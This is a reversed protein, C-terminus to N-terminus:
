ASLRGTAGARVLLVAGMRRDVAEADPERRAREPTVHRRERAFRDPVEAAAVLRAEHPRHEVLDLPGNQDVNREGRIQLRVLPDGRDFASQGFRQGAHLASREVDNQADVHELVEPLRELDQALQPADRCRAPGTEHVHRAPAALPEELERGKPEAEAWGLLDGVVLGVVVRGVEPRKEDLGSEARVANGASRVLEPEVGEGGAADIASAGAPARSSQSRWQVSYASAFSRFGAWSYRRRRTSDSRLPGSRTRSMPQPLPSSAAATRLSNGPASTRPRSVLAAATSIARRFTGPAENSCRSRSTGASGSARKRPQAVCATQESTRSGRSSGPSSRPFAFSYRADPQRSTTVTGPPGIDAYSRCM